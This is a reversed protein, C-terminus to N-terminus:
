KVVKKIAKFALILGLVGGVTLLVNKTTFVNAQATASQAVQAEKVSNAIKAQENQMRWAFYTTTVTEVPSLITSLWNSSTDAM